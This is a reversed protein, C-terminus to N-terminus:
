TGAGAAQRGAQVGAPPGGSATQVAHFRVDLANSRVPDPTEHRDPQGPAGPGHHQHHRHSRLGTEPSAARGLGMLWRCQPGLLRVVAMADWCIFLLCRPGLLMFAVHTHSRHLSRRGVSRAMVPGIGCRDPGLRGLTVGPRDWAGGVCARCGLLLHRWPGAIGGPMSVGSSGRGRPCGHRVVHTRAAGSNRSGNQRGRRSGRETSTRESGSRRAAYGKAQMWLAM